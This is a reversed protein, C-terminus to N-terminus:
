LINEDESPAPPKDGEEELLRLATRLCFVDIRVRRLEDLKQAIVAAIDKM